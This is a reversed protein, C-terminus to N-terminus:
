PPKKPVLSLVVVRMMLPRLSVTVRLTSWCPLSVIWVIVGLAARHVDITYLLSAM